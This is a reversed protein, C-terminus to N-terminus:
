GYIDMITRPKTGNQKKAPPVVSSNGKGKLKDIEKQLKAKEKRETALENKWYRTLNTLNDREKTRYYALEILAQPDELDRVLQSKGDKGKELLYRMILNRDDDSVDLSLADASTDEPDLDIQIFNRMANQLNNQLEQYSQEEMARAQQEQEEEYAKQTERISAVEKNFLEENVKAADLKAYLEEDTFNPYKNHLDALYVEDDTYEDISYVRQHVDEPHESLYENIGQQKFYAAVDDLTANNRRLYDIVSREYDSYGPDSLDKFINLKEEESLSDFDVEEINGDDNQMQIKSSDAIGHMRLYDKVFNTSKSAQSSESDEHKGEEEDDEEEQSGGNTDFLDETDTYDKDPDQEVIDIDDNSLLSEFSQNLEMNENNRLFSQLYVFFNSIEM